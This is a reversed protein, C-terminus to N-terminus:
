KANRVISSCASCFHEPHAGLSWAERRSDSGTFQGHTVCVVAWEEEVGLWHDEDSGAREVNTNAGTSQAIADRVIENIATERAAIKTATM